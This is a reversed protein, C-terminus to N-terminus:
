QRRRDAIAIEQDAESKAKDIYTKLKDKLNVLTEKAIGDELIDENMYDKGAEKGKKSDEEAKQKQDKSDDKKDSLAENSQGGENKEQKESEEKEKESESEEVKNQNEKDNEEKGKETETNDRGKEEETEKKDKEQETEEKGKNQETIEKGKEQDAEEKGKDQESKDKGKEPETEDKKNDREKEEENMPKGGDEEKNVNDNEDTDSSKESNDKRKSNSNSESLEVDEEDNKSRRPIFDRREFDVTRGDDQDERDIPADEFDDANEVNDFGGGRYEQDYDNPILFLPRRRRPYRRPKPAPYRRPGRSPLTRYRPPISQPIMQNEAPYMMPTEDEARRNTEYGKAAINEVTDKAKDLIRELRKEAEEEWAKKAKEAASEKEPTPLKRNERKSDNEDDVDGKEDSSSASPPKIMRNGGGGKKKEKREEIHLKQLENIDKRMQALALTLKQDIMTLEYAVNPASQREIVDEPASLDLRSTSITSPIDASSSMSSIPGAGNANILSGVNSMGNMSAARENGVNSGGLGGTMDTEVMGDDPHPQNLVGVNPNPSQQEQIRQNIEALKSQGLAYDQAQQQAQAKQRMEALKAEELAKQAAQQEQIELQKAMLAASRRTEVEERAQQEQAARARAANIKRQTQLAKIISQWLKERVENLMKLSKMMNSVEEEPRMQLGTNQSSASHQGLILVLALYLAAWIRLQLMNVM